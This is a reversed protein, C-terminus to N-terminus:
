GANGNAGSSTMGADVLIWDIQSIVACRTLALAKDAERATQKAPNV